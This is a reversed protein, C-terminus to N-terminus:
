MGPGYATVDRFGQLFFSQITSPPLKFAALAVALTARLPPLPIRRWDRYADLTRIAFNTETQPKSPVFKAIQLVSAFKIIRTHNLDLLGGGYWATCSTASKEIM